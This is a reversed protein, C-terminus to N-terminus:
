WQRKNLVITKYKYDIGDIAGANKNLSDVSNKAEDEDFFVDICTEIKGGCYVLYFENQKVINTLFDLLQKLEQRTSELKM